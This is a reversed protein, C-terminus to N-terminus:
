PLRDAGFVADPKSKVVVVRIRLRLTLGHSDQSAKLGAKQIVVMM